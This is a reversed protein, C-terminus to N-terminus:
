YLCQICRTSVMADYKEAIMNALSTKGCLPPGVVCVKCPLMPHPPLLYTRPSRIFKVLSEASSMSYMKDLFSHSSQCSYIHQLKIPYLQLVKQDTADLNLCNLTPFIIVLSKVLGVWSLSAFCSINTPLAILLWLVLATYM